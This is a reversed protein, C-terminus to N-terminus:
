EGRLWWLVDERYKQIKHFFTFSDVLFPAIGLDFGDFTLDLLLDVLNPDGVESM